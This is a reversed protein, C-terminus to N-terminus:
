RAMSCLRDQPCPFEETDVLHPNLADANLLQGSSFFDLDQRGLPLRISPNSLNSLNSQNPCGNDDPFIDTPTWYEGLIGLIRKLILDFRLIDFASNQIASTFGVEVNSM